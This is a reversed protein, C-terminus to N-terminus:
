NVVAYHVEGTFGVDMIEMEESAAEMSQLYIDISEQPSDSDDYFSIELTSAGIASQLLMVEGNGTSYHQLEANTIEFNPGTAEIEFGTLESVYLGPDFEQPQHASVPVASFSLALTLLIAGVRKPQLITHMYNGKPKSTM